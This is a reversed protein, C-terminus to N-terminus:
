CPIPIGTFMDRGTCEAAAGPPMNPGDWLESGELQIAQQTQRHTVPDFPGVWVTRAVNGMGPKVRQWTYCVNMDWVYM